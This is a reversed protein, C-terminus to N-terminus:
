TKVIIINRDVLSELDQIHHHRKSNVFNISLDNWKALQKQSETVREKGKAISDKNCTYKSFDTKIVPWETHNEAVV